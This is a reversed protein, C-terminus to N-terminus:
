STTTKSNMLTNNSVMTKKNSATPSMGSLKRDKLISPKLDDISNKSSGVFKRTKMKVRKPNSSSRTNNRIRGPSKSKSVSRRMHFTKGISPFADQNATKRGVYPNTFGSSRMQKVEDFKLTMSDPEYRTDSLPGKASPTIDM